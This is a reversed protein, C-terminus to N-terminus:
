CHEVGGCNPFHLKLVEKRRFTFLLHPYFWVMPPLSKDTFACEGTKIDRKKTCSGDNVAVVHANPVVTFMQRGWDLIQKNTHHIQVDKILYLDAPPLGKIMEFDFMDGHRLDLEPHKAKAADIVSKVCDIGIYHLKPCLKLVEPMWQMDGCGFDVVVKMNRMYKSLWPIFTKNYELTSGSGSGKGWRKDAYVKTFIDEM